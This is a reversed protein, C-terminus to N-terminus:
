IAVMMSKRRVVTTDAPNHGSSMFSVPRSDQWVTVCVNGDQRVERAGRSGLGKKSLEKLDPPFNRRNTLATGTCYIGDSLLNHLLSVSSFFNDIYIHHHKGM